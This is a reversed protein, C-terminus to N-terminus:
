WARKLYEKVGFSALVGEGTAAAIQATAGQRCDGAAFIGRMSTEVTGDKTVIFGREDREVIGELFATNPTLGIFIFVGDAELLTEEGTENDRVKLTEFLGQDNALFAVSTTNMYTAVNSREALKEVYTPSASFDPKRVM